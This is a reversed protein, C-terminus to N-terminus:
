GENAKGEVLRMFARIRDQDHYERYHPIKGEKVDAVIRM